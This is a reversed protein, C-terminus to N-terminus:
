PDRACNEPAAAPSVVSLVELCRVPRRQDDHQVLHIGIVASKASSGSLSLLLMPSRATNDGALMKLTPESKMASGRDIVSVVGM